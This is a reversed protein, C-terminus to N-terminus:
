KALCICADCIPNDGPIKLPCRYITAGEVREVSVATREIPHLPRHAVYALYLSALVIWKHGEPADSMYEDLYEQLYHALNEAADLDVDPWPQAQRSAQGDASCMARMELLAMRNHGNITLSPDWRELADWEAQTIRSALEKCFEITNM